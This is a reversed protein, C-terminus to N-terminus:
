SAQQTAFSVDVNASLTVANLLANSYCSTSQGDFYIFIDVQFVNNAVSGEGSKQWIVPQVKGEGSAAITSIDVFTLSTTANAATGNVAGHRNTSPDENAVYQATITGTPSTSGTPPTLHNVKFAVTLADDLVQASAHTDYTPTITVGNIVLKAFDSESRIWVTKKLYYNAATTVTNFTTTDAKGYATATEASTYYWTTTDATSTPRISVAADDWAVTGLTINAYSPESESKDIYLSGDTTAAVQMGTATVSQNMAFWAYTSSGMAIAAVLVMAIAGIFQTKLSKMNM